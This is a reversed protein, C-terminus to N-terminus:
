LKLRENSLLLLIIVLTISVTLVVPLASNKVVITMDIPNAEYKVASIFISTSKPIIMLVVITNAKKASIITVGANIAM